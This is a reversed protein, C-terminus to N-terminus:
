AAAGQFATGNSAAALGREIETALGEWGNAVHTAKCFHHPNVQGFTPALRLESKLAMHWPIVHVDPQITRGHLWLTVCLGSPHEVRVHVDRPEIEIACNAGYRAAINSVGRAMKLRDAKRRETLTTTGYNM